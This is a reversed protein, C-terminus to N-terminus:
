KVEGIQKLYQQPTIVGISFKEAVNRFDKVNHTVIYKANGNFAVELIKDDGFDRLFPRWLYNIRINISAACIDFIYQEVEQDTLEPYLKRNETRLLVDKLETVIPLSILNFATDESFLKWLVKYAAGNQSVLASMFVNTDIVAREM